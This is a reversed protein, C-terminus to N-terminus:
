NGNHITRAFAAGFQEAKKLVEGSAGGQFICEDIIDWKGEIISHFEKRAGGSWGFSGFFAAKKKIIRKIMAMRIVEAVPPFLTNEYTPSGVIVGSTTWLSSLIYSSHIRAADFIKVKIGERSAGYAAANMARETNGYMSGFILTIGPEGGRKGMEAWDRYLTLIREPNKRWVLGHSPAIIDIKLDELKKIAKLVPGTFSGIVNVFYRLAEHEYFEYDRCDDDFLSGALAGFGGFGDCSFLIKADELYTMMTEPWHVFPTSLFRLTHRGLSLTDDDGVIRTNEEIQYFTKLM